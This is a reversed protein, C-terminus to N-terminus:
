ALTQTRQRIEHYSSDIQVSCKTSVFGNVTDNADREAMEHCTTDQAVARVALAMELLKTANTAKHFLNLDTFPGISVTRAGMVKATRIATSLAVCLM